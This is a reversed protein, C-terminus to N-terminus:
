YGYVLSEDMEQMRQTTLAKQYVESIAIDAMVVLEEGVNPTNAITLIRQVLRRVEDTCPASAITDISYTANTNFSM